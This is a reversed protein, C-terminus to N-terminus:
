APWRGGTEKLLDSFAAQTGAQNGVDIACAAEYEHLLRIWHDELRARRDPNREAEIVLWGTNLRGALVQADTDRHDTRHM